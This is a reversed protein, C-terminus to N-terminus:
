DRRALLAMLEHMYAPSAPMDDTSRGDKSPPDGLVRRAFVDYISNRASVDTVPEIFAPFSQLQVQVGKAWNFQARHQSAQRALYAGLGGIGGLIAIRLILGSWDDSGPAPMLAAIAIAVGFMALAAGRFWNSALREDSAYSEFYTSLNATGIIGASDRAADASTELQATIERAREEAAALGREYSLRARELAIQDKVQSVRAFVYDAIKSAEFEFDDAAYVGPDLRFQSAVTELSELAGVAADLISSETSDVLLTPLRDFFGELEQRLSSTWLAPGDVAGMVTALTEEIAQRAIPALEDNRRDFADTAM